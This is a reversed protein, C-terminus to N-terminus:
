ERAGIEEEASCRVFQNPFISRTQHLLATTAHSDEAVSLRSSVPHNVEDNFREASTM